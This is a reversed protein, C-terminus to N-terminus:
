SSKGFDYLIAANEVIIRHRTAESPAWQTLLDLLVAGGL